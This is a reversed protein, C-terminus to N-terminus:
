AASTVILKYKCLDDIFSDLNQGNIFYKIERGDYLAITTISPLFLGTTEIDIFAISDKFDPYIRWLQNSPLRETFFTINSNNYNIKSLDIEKIIKLLPKPGFLKDSHHILCDWDTVGLDWLKLESIKGIGSLHCFTNKLM